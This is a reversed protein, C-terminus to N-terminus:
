YPSGRFASRVNASFMYLLLLVNVVILIVYAWHTTTSFMDGPAQLFGFVDGVARLAFVFVAFAWAWTMLSWLGAAVFLGLIGVLAAIVARTQDDPVDLVSIWGMADAAVLFNGIATLATLAAMITILLPRPQM